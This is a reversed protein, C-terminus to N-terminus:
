EVKLAIAAEVLLTRSTGATVAIDNRDGAISAFSVEVSSWILLPRKM